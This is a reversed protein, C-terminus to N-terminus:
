NARRLTGEVTEVPKFFVDVRMGPLLPPQGDMDVVVELVDVDNPRRPGRQGLKGPGLSPALSAVKGAFERGPYADSRVVVLQGVRVKAADREEVEARVKLASVDGMLLLVQEPSPTATEGARAAVNLITGDRPARIRTRELTTIAMSLESRAVSFAAEVRTPLAIGQATEAKRLAARESDLRTEANRVAQRRENLRDLNASSADRRYALFAADMEARAQSLAYEAEMVADEAQRRARVLENPNPEAADRERKRVAAEARAGHVRALAEEDSLRVLLDGASVRDNPQVTVAIIRGPTVAGIRIEGGSPEVRGPAAADWQVKPLPKATTQANLRGSINASPLFYSAGAVVAAAIVFAFFLSFITSRNSNM